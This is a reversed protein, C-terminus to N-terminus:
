TTEHMKVAKTQKLPYIKEHINFRDNEVKIVVGGFMPGRMRDIKYTFPTKAQWAPLKVGCCNPPDIKFFRHTHGRVILTPPRMGWQGAEVFAAVIERQLASSEYAASTTAGVHHSFHALSRGGFDMWLEWRSYVGIDKDKTAGLERAITEEEQASSGVHAETGRIQFYGEAGAIKPKM